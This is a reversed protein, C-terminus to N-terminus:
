AIKSKGKDELITKIEKVETIKTDNTDSVIRNGTLKYGKIALNEYM